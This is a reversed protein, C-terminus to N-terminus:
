AWGGRPQRVAIRENAEGVFYRLCALILDFIWHVDVRIWRKNWTSVLSWSESSPTAAVWLNGFPGLLNLSRFSYDERALIMLNWWWSWRQSGTRCWLCESSVLSLGKCLNRSPDHWSRPQLKNRSKPSRTIQTELSSWSKSHLIMPGVRDEPLNVSLSLMWKNAASPSVEIFSLSQRPM